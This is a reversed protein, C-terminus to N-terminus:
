VLKLITTESIRGRKGLAIGKAAALQRVTAPHAKLYAVKVERSLRGREGVNLGTDEAWERIDISTINM